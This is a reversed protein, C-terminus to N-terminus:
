YDAGSGLRQLLVHDYSRKLFTSRASKAFGQGGFQVVSLLIELLHAVYRQDFSREYVYGRIEKGSVRNSSPIRRISPDLLDRLIPELVRKTQTLGRHPWPISTTVQYIIEFQM